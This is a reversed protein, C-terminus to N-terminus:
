RRRADPLSGERESGAGHVTEREAEFPSPMPVGPAFALGPALPQRGTEPGGGGGAHVDGVIANGNVHVHKVEVKQQAGGRLKGLAETLGILTRSLKTAQNIYAERSALGEARAARGMCDMALGNVAAIQCAFAAELEDKAGIAGILALAADYAPPTKATPDLVNMLGAFSSETFNSSVTGFQEKFFAEWGVGDSHQPGIKVTRGEIQAKVTCRLPRAAQRTKADAMTAKVRPGPEPLDVNVAARDKSPKRASM